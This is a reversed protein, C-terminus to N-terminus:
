LSDRSAGAPTPEPKPFLGGILAGVTFGVGASLVGGGIGALICTGTSEHSESEACLGAGLVAGLVGLTAGGIIGGTLWYTPRTDRRLDANLDTLEVTPEFSTPTYTAFAAARMPGHGAQPRTQAALNGGIPLMLLLSAVAPRADLRM